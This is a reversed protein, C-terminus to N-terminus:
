SQSHNHTTHTCSPKHSYTAGLTPIHTPTTPWPTAHSSQGLLGQLTPITLLTPTTLCGLLKNTIIHTDPLHKAPSCQVSSPWCGSVDMQIDATQWSPLPLPSISLQFKTIKMKFAYNNYRTNVNFTIVPVSVETVDCRHTHPHVYTLPSPDLAFTRHIIFVHVYVYLSTSTDNYVM